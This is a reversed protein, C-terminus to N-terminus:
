EGVYNCVCLMCACMCFWAYVSIYSCVYMGIGVSVCVYVCVYVSVCMYLCVCAHVCIHVYVHVCLCAHMYVCLACVWTYVDHVCMLVCAYVHMSMCACVCVHVNCVHMYACLVVCLNSHIVWKRLVWAQRTIWSIDRVLQSKVTWSLASEPLHANPSEKSQWLVHLMDTRVCM